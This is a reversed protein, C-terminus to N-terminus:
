PTFDKEREREKRDTEGKREKQGLTPLDGKTQHSDKNINRGFGDSKEHERQSNKKKIFAFPPFFQFSQKQRRNMSKQNTTLNSHLAIYFAQIFSLSFLFACFFIDYIGIEFHSGCVCFDPSTGGRRRILTKKAGHTGVLDHTTSDAQHTM